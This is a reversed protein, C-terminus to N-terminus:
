AECTLCRMPQAPSWERGSPSSGGHSPSMSLSRRQTGKLGMREAHPLHAAELASSVKVLARWFLDGEVQGLATQSISTPEGLLFAQRVIM